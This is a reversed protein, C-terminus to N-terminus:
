ILDLDEATVLRCAVAYEVLRARRQTALQGSDGQLGAVGQRRLRDGPLDLQKNFRRISWALRTAAVQNSPLANRGLGARRLVPEALVALLRRQEHTLVIQGKTTAGTGDGLTDPLDFPPDDLLLEFEYTVPGASFWVVTRSFVMPLRAGPSLWAHVSGLHDSVTAASQAGVNALWWIGEARVIALFRRHLYRNTDIVYDADRGLVFPKDEPIEIVEGAFDLRLSM